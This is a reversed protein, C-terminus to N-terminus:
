YRAGNQWSFHDDLPYSACAQKRDVIVLPLSWRFTILWNDAKKANQLIAKRKLKAIISKFIM